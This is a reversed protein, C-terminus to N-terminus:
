KIKYSIFGEKMDISEILWLFILTLFFNDVHLESHEKKFDNFLDEVSFREHKLKKLLSAGLAILSESLKEHKTPILM